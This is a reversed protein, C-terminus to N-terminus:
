TESLPHLLIGALFFVVRLFAVRLFAVRLFAVRLFAVRLFAVRLFAVRLFAVRLFAVRLFAVRLFAVRLFALRLFALRLFVVLLFTAGIIYGEFYNKPVDTPAPVRRGGSSKPTERAGARPREGITAAAAPCSTHGGGSLGQTWM